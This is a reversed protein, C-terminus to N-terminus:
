SIKLQRLRSLQSGHYIGLSFYIGSPKSLIHVGGGGWSTDGELQHARWLASKDVYHGLIGTISGSLCRSFINMGMVPAM